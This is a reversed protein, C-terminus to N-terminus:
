KQISLGILYPFKKVSNKYDNISTVDEMQMPPLEEADRV